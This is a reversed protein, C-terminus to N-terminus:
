SLAVKVDGVPAMCQEYLAPPLVERAAASDVKSVRCLALVDDPLIREALQPNFRRNLSITVTLAGAAYSDPTGQTLDRLQAKLTDARETMEKIRDQVTALETAVPTIQDELTM